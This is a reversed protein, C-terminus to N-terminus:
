VRPRSRNGGEATEVLEDLSAELGPGQIEIERLVELMARRYRPDAELLEKTIEVFRAESMEGRNAALRVEIEQSLDPGSGPDLVARGGLFGGLVFVVVAAARVVPMVREPLSRKEARRIGEGRRVADSRRLEPSRLRTELRRAERYFTRCAACEVLHDLTEPLRPADAEGDMAASLEMEFRRCASM